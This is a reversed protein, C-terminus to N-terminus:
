NLEKESGKQTSAPATLIDQPYLSICLKGRVALTLEKTLQLNKREMERYGKKVMQQKVMMQKDPDQLISERSDMM